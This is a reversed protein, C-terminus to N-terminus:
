AEETKQKANSEELLLLENYKEILYKFVSDYHIKQINEIRLINTFYNSNEKAREILRENEKKILYNLLEENKLIKRIYDIEMFEINIGKIVPPENEHRKCKYTINNYTRLKYQHGSYPENNYVSIGFNNISEIIKTM